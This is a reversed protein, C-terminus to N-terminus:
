RTPPPTSPVPRRGGNRHESLRGAAREVAAQLQEDDGHTTALEDLAHALDHRNVLHRWAAEAIVPAPPRPPPPPPTM